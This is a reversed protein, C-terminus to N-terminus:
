RAESVVLEFIEFGEDLGAEGVLDGHQADDDAAGDVADIFYFVEVLLQAEDAGEALGGGLEGAEEAGLAQEDAFDALYLLGELLGDVLELM